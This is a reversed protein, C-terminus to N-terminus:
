AELEAVAEAATLVRGYKMALTRLAAEHLAPAYSSVAHSMVPTWQAMLTSGPAAVFPTCVVPRRHERFWGLLERHVDITERADPAELPAGGRVFDKQM